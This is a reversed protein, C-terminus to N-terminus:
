RSQDSRNEGNYRTRQHLARQSHIRTEVQRAFRPKEDLWEIQNGPIRLRYERRGLDAEDFVSVKDILEIRGYKRNYREVWIPQPSLRSEPQSIKGLMRLLDSQQFFRQDFVGAPYDRGIVLLPVRARASDGYRTTEVTTLPRMQRHDGTILLIGHEFYGTESLQHYFETLQRMSWEWVAQPTDPEQEPHTYPLHTSTTALVLLFPRSESFLQRLRLLAEAYLLTDSPADQVVRPATRMASVEDRGRSRDFGLGDLYRSLGIFGLDANTLFETFYGQQRYKATVSPQIAFEDFMYPSATPFHLPPYGGLLAIIGGESAQHNAFFNRFLTGQKALEDFDELFGAIGSVKQSNISSLSEVVLLIIDPKTVPIEVTDQGLGTYYKMQAASYSSVPPTGKLLGAPALMAYRALPQPAYVAGLGTLLLASVLMLFSFKKMLQSCTPVLVVAVLLLLIAAYVRANFFSLIVGTEPAYRGIDFLPAHEDLALLVFSDVLYIVSMFVLVFWLLINLIKTRSLSQLIAVLFLLSLYFADLSVLISFAYAGAGMETTLVAAKYVALVAAFLVM